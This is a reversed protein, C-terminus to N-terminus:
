TVGCHLDAGVDQRYDAVIIAGKRPRLIELLKLYIRNRKQWLSNLKRAYHAISVDELKFRLLRRVTEALSYFEKHAWIQARQLDALSFKQPRFVVHHADYLSWDSFAIRGEALLEQYCRTGPLPTLILFQASSLGNQKAFKVSAKVTKPNDDDVGLIFMGHINIGNQSFVRAARQMEGVTQKKHMSKLSDANVSEFGIFVTHCGARKMLQILQEDGAIDARVQTSWKFKFKEAIMRELLDYTHHPRAAFNDDYFFIFNSRKNYQRLEGIIHEISRFRYRRGFMGTVSCFSCDFPCGRSTQIPIINKGAIPKMVGRMLSFDPYPLENLNVLNNECANYQVKGNPRHVINPVFGVDRGEVIANILGTFVAEAEGLVVFDCHELAEEPMFTVHPGGMIVTIGMKRVRDAIAYARPATPTITSIGVIDATRMERWDIKQQEEVYVAVQWGAERAMTGLLVSGLRPLPFKSFIHLNPSKPEIFIIKPM